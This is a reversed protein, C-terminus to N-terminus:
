APCMPETLVQIQHTIQVFNIYVAPWPRGHDLTHDCQLSRVNVLILSRESFPHRYPLAYSINPRAARPKDFTIIYILCNFVRLGFAFLVQDRRKPM